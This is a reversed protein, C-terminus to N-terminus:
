HQSLKDHNGRTPFLASFQATVSFKAQYAIDQLAETKGCNTNHVWVGTEGVYYTHFEEVEFNHVTTVYAEGLELRGLNLAAAEDSALKIQRDSIDLVIGVGVRDDAAFAIHSHQTHRIPGAAHVTAPSGDQLQLVLGPVLCETALWHQDDALPSKVWFPHNATAFLTTLSDSGAVNVQVAYVPQDLHAVTNIVPRYAREGGLEPQSLVRTGVRIHEIAVLGQETHVLTGPAFCAKYVVEGKDNLEVIGEAAKAFTDAAIVRGESIPVGNADRRASEVIYQKGNAAEYVLDKLTTEEIVGRRMQQTRFEVQKVALELQRKLIPTLGAKAMPARIAFMNYIVNRFAESEGAMKAATAKYLGEATV